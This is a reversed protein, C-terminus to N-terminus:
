QTNITYLNNNGSLSLTIFSQEPNEKLSKSIYVGNGDLILWDPIQEIVNNDLVNIKLPTNLSINMKVDGNINEIRWLQSNKLPIQPLTIETSAQQIKLFLNELSSISSFNLKGNSYQLSFVFERYTQLPNLSISSNKYYQTNTDIGSRELSILKIDTSTEETIIPRSDITNFKVETGPIQNTSDIDVQGYSNSLTLSIPKTTIPFSQNSTNFQPTQELPETVPQPRIYTYYFFINGTILCFIGLVIFIRRYPYIIKEIIHKILPKM